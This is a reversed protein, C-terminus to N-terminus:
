PSRRRPPLRGPKPPKPPEAPKVGAENIRADALRARIMAPNRLRALELEREHVQNILDEAERDLRSTGFQMRTAEARLIVVSLAVALFGSLVAITRTLTM